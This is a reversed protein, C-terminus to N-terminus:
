ARKAGTNNNAEGQWKRGQYTDRKVFEGNINNLVMKKNKSYLPAILDAGNGDGTIRHVVVDPPLSEICGVVVDTYDYIDLCEFEGAAYAEALKTGKLVHLLQLKIGKIGCDVAFKVSRQMDEKDEGPLGLIIHAIVDIGRDSLRKVSNEFCDNDFCRNILKATKENSTQLGLEVCTYKIGNMEALLDIKDGELCDPRTAISLACVEPIELAEMYLQRLHEVPAYTNTFAQFYAMYLGDSWKKDMVEKGKYFQERISMLRSGAFDGSGSQSCFICGGVGKTGDRNPCTFGGDLAVKIVRKGFKNRFFENASYYRKEM